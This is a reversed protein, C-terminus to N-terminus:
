KLRIDSFTHLLVCTGQVLYVDVLFWSFKYHHIFNAGLASFLFIFNCHLSWSFLSLLLFALFFYVNYSVELPTMLEAPKEWSSFKTRKNYYYRSSSHYMFFNCYFVGFVRVLIIVGYMVFSTVRQFLFYYLCSKSRGM